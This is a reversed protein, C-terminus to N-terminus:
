IAIVFYQNSYKGSERYNVNSGEKWNQFSSHTLWYPLSYMIASSDFFEVYSIKDLGGQQDEFVGWWIILDM